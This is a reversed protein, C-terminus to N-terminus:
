AAFSNQLNVPKAHVCLLSLDLQSLATNHCLACSGRLMTEAAFLLFGLCYLSHEFARHSDIGAAMNICFISLICFLSDSLSLFLSLSLLTCLTCLSPFFLVIVAAKDEITQKKLIAFLLSPLHLIADHLRNPMATHININHVSLPYAICAFVIHFYENVYFEGILISFKVGLSQHAASGKVM